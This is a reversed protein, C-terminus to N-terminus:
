MLGQDQFSLYDNKAIIIFDLFNIQILKSANKIHHCLNIDNNSPNRNGSPHNHGCIISTAGLDIAKKYIIKVDVSTECIGGKFMKLITLVQNAKDLFIVSFVEVKSFSLDKLLEFSHSSNSVKKVETQCLARKFIEFASIIRNSEKVTLGM